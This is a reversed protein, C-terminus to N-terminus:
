KRKRTCLGHSCEQQGQRHLAVHSVTNPMSCRGEARVISWPSCSRLLPNDTEATKAMEQELGAPEKEHTEHMEHNAEKVSCREWTRVISWSMCSVCSLRSTAQTFRRPLPPIGTNEAVQTEGRKVRPTALTGSPLPVFVRMGPVVGGSVEGGHEVRHPIHGLPDIVIVAQQM